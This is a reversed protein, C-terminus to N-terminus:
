RSTTSFTPSKTWFWDFMPAMTVASDPATTPLSSCCHDDPAVPPNDTRRPEGSGDVEHRNACVVASGPVDTPKESALQPEDATVALNESPRGEAVTTGRDTTTGASETATKLAVAMAPHGCLM